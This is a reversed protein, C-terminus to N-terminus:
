RVQLKLNKEDGRNDQTVRELADEKIQDQFYLLLIYPEVILVNFV